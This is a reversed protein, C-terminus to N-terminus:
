KIKSITRLKSRATDIKEQAATFQPDEELCEQWKKIAAVIEGNLYYNIGDFYLTKAKTTNVDV